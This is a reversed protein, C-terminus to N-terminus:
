NGTSLRLDLLFRLSNREAIFRPLNAEFEMIAAREEFAEREEPSLAAIKKTMESYSDM